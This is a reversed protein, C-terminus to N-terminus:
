LCDYETTNIAVTSESYLNVVISTPDIPRELSPCTKLLEASPFFIELFDNFMGLGFRHVVLIAMYTQPHYNIAGM